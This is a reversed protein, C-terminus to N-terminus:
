SQFFTCRLANRRRSDFDGIRRAQEYQVSGEIERWVDESIHMLRHNVLIWALAGVALAGLMGSFNYPSEFAWRGLWNGALM